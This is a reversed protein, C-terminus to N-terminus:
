GTEQYIYQYDFVESADDGGRRKWSTIVGDKWDLKFLRARRDMTTASKSSKDYSPEGSAGSYCMWVGNDISPQICCENMHEYGVSIAKVNFDRIFQVTNPDTLLSSLRGKENYQGVIGFTGKPRFEKIPSHQFMLSSNPEDLSGMQSKLTDLQHPSEQFLDLIYIMSLMEKEPTAIPIAYNTETDTLLSYPLTNIFQIIEQKSAYKHSDQFGFAIAYPIQRVIFPSLAKLLATQYDEVTFGDLIDGTIIVLDPTEQDLVKNIFRLTRVDTKCDLEIEQNLQHKFSGFNSTFHLDSVQLIKFSDNINRVFYKGKGNFYSNINRVGQHISLRLRNHSELTGSVFKWNERPEVMDSDGFLYTLDSIPKSAHSNISDYKIWIGKNRKSWSTSTAEMDLRSKAKGLLAGSVRTVYQPPEESGSDGLAIDVIVNGSHAGAQDLKFLHVYIYDHYNNEVSSFVKNWLSSVSWNIGINTTHAPVGNLDLYKDVKVWVKEVGSSDVEIIQNCQGYLISSCRIVKIDDILGGQYPKVFDYNIQNNYFNRM